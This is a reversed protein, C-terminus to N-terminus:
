QTEELKARNYCPCGYVLNDLISGKVLCPEQEVVGIMNRRLYYRDIEKINIQNFEIKGDYDPYLGIMLNIFSSKGAVNAGKLCYIYLRKRFALVRM